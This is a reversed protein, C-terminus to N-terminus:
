SLQAPLLRRLHTHWHVFRSKKTGENQDSGNPSVYLYDGSGEENAKTKDYVFALIVSTLVGALLIFYWKRM